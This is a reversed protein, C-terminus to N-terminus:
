RGEEIMRGLEELAVRKCHGEDLLDTADRMAGLAAQETVHQRVKDREWGRPKDRPDGTWRPRWGCLCANISAPLHEDLAAQTHVLATM